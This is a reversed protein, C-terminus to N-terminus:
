HKVDAGANTLPTCDRPEHGAHMTPDVPPSVIVIYLSKQTEHVHQVEECAKLPGPDNHSM